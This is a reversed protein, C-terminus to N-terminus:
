IKHVAVSLDCKLQTFKTVPVEEYVGPHAVDGRFSPSDKAVALMPVFLLFVWFWARAM